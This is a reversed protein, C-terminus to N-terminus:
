RYMNKYEEWRSKKKSYLNNITNLNNSRLNKLSNDIIFYGRYSNNKFSNDTNLYDISNLDAWFEFKNKFAYDSIYKHKGNEYIGNYMNFSNVMDSKESLYLGNFKNYMYDMTHSLEHVVTRQIWEDNCGDKNDNIYIKMDGRYAM